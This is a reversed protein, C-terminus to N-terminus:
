GSVAQIRQGYLAEVSLMVVTNCKMKSGAVDFVASTSLLMTRVGAAALRAAIKAPILADIMRALDPRARRDSFKTMAAFLFCVDAEPLAAGSERPDALDLFLQNPGTRKNLRTTGIVSDGHKRLAQALAGGILGDTGIVIARLIRGL